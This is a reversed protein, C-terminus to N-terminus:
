RSDAILVDASAHRRGTGRFTVTNHTGIHLAAAINLTLHKGSRLGRLTRVRKGDVFVALSRLGPSGNLVTIFRETDSVGSIRLTRTAGRSGVTALVPDCTTQRGAVDTVTLRVISTQTQNLKTATVVVPSTTGSTFAPVNVTANTSTNVVISRLGSNGEQATIQIQKPPGPITGTLQCSPLADAVQTLSTGAGGGFFGNVTDQFVANVVQETTFRPFGTIPMPLKNVTFTFNITCSAGPAVTLTSSPTVLVNGTTPDPPGFAFTLGACAGSGTGSGPVISFVGPDNTTCSLTMGNCSPTFVISTVRDADATEPPTNTNQITINGAYHTSGVVVPTTLQPVASGGIGAFAAQAGFLLSLGGVLGLAVSLRALPRTSSRLTIM